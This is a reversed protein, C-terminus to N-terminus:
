GNENRRKYFTRVNPNKEGFKEVLERLVDERSKGKKELRKILQYAGFLPSPGIESSFTGIGENWVLMSFLEDLEDVTLGIAYAKIMERTAQRFRSM